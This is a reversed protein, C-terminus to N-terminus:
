NRVISKSRLLTYSKSWDQRGIAMWGICRVFDSISFIIISWLTHKLDPLRRKEVRFQGLPSQPSYNILLHNEYHCFHTLNDCFPQLLFNGVSIFKNRDNHFMLACRKPCCREFTEWRGYLAPFLIVAIHKPIGYQKLEWMIQPLYILSSSVSLTNNGLSHTHQIIHQRNTRHAVVQSLLIIRM